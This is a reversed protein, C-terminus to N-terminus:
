GEELSSRFVEGYLDWAALFLAAVIPGLIFGTAGFLYIGGLTGVLVMLDPMKTDRGVLRPRLYNDVTGVVAGCWVAMAIASGTAGTAFLWITAPIWVLASGVAPIVSLVIMVTMWFAWGPIGAM